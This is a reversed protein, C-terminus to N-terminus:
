WINANQNQSKNSQGIVGGVPDSPISGQGWTGQALTGNMGNRGQVSSPWHPAGVSGVSMGPTSSPAKLNGSTIHVGPLLSQLLAIDSSSGGNGVASSGASTRALGDALSPGRIEM